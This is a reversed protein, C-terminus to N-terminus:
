LKKYVKVKRLHQCMDFLKLLKIAIGKKDSPWTYIFIETVMIKRPKLLGLAGEKM